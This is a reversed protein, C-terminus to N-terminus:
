KPYSQVIDVVQGTVPGRRRLTHYPREGTCYEVKCTPREEPRIHGLPTEFVETLLSLIILDCTPTAFASNHLSAMTAVSTTPWPAKVISAM